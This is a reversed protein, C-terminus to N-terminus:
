GGRTSGWVQKANQIAIRRKQINSEITSRLKQFEEPLVQKDYFSQFSKVSTFTLPIKASYADFMRRLARGHNSFVGYPKSGDNVSPQQGNLYQGVEIWLQKAANVVKLAEEYRRKKNLGAAVGYAAFATVAGERLDPLLEEPSMEQPRSEEAQDQPRSEEAQDQLRSEEAQDQPRSEEAQDQLRSEEAQDQPRSEEAQDQLRSEEAQDQLRSEEAQDQLRAGDDAQDNSAFEEGDVTVTRESKKREFSGDRGRLGFVPVAGCAFLLLAIIRTIVM